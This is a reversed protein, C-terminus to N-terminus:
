ECPPPFTPGSDPLQEGRIGNAIEDALWILVTGAIYGACLVVFGSSRGGSGASGPACIRLQRRRRNFQKAHAYPGAMM